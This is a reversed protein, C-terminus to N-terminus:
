ACTQGSKKNIPFLFCAVGFAGNFVHLCKLLMSLQVYICANTDILSTEKPTLLTVVFHLLLVFMFLLM